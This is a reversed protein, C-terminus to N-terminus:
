WSGWMFLLVKKGRLAHLDLETGDLTPLTPMALRTGVSTVTDSM